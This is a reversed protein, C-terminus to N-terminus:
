EKIIFTKIYDDRASLHDSYNRSFVHTGKAPNKVVFFLSDIKAPNFVAELAVKGTISIPAPPLSSYLYTNYPSDIELYQEFIRRKFRYFDDRFPRGAETEEIAYVVTACSQLAMGEKLRNNFVAAIKKAEEDIRYEREVISALVIKEHLQGKTLRRWSPEIEDLVSFFKDTMTRVISEAILESARPSEDFPAEIKYTDPFLYGQLGWENQLIPYESALAVIAKEVDVAYALRSEQIHTAIQSTTYGPLVVLTTYIRQANSPSTISKLIQSPRMGTELSYRGAQHAGALGLRSTIRYRWQIYLAHRLLGLHELELSLDQFSTGPPISVVIPDMGKEGFPADLLFWFWIFGGAFLLLLTLGLLVLLRKIILIGRSDLELTMFM